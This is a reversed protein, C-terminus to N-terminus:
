RVCPLMDIFSFLFHPDVQPNCGTRCATYMIMPSPIM